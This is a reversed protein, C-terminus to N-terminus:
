FRWSYRKCFTPSVCGGRNMRPTVSWIGAVPRNDGSGDGHHNASTDVEAPIATSQPDHFESLACFVRQPQEEAENTDAM